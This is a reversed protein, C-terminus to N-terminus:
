ETRPQPEQKLKNLLESGTDDDYTIKRYYWYEAGWILFTDIGLRRLERFVELASDPTGTRPLPEKKYVVHGPEWPEAQLETVWM